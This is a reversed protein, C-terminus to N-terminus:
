RRGARMLFYMGGGAVLGWFAGGVGLFSMGSASLLFTVLAAERDRTVALAASLSGGFAGLLALGAVATIIIPPALDAIVIVAGAFAGFIVYFVGSAVAAWYRRAPDAHADPGACMSATIAALNVAHGGFPAALLSFVGTDRFLPSAPPHYDNAKLVAVGPVNQSAMTVVFLPVSISIVSALSFSPMIVTPTVFWVAEAAVSGDQILVVLTITVLLTVPMAFLRQVRMMVAWVVIMPLAIMPVEAVAMVPALCFNFLVGALMANALPAPIAEVWRGLPRWVGAVIIMVGCIVFAGVADAFGGASLPITALLAAGPTSWAVSIPMKTRLSLYIGCLGMAVSLAM